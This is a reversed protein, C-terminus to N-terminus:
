SPASPQTVRGGCPDQRAFRPTFWLYDFSAATGTATASPSPTPSPSGNGDNCGSLAGLSLALPAVLAVRRLSNFRLTNM